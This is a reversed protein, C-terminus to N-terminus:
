SAPEITVTSGEVVRLEIWALESSAGGLFIEVEAPDLFLGAGGKFVLQVAIDDPPLTQVRELVGEFGCGFFRGYANVAVRVEQGLMAQLHELAETFEIPRLIDMRRWLDQRM